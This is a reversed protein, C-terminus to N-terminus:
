ALRLQRGTLWTPEVAVLVSGPARRWTYAAALPDDAALLRAPGSLVVSWGEPHHADLQDVEALARAGRRAAAALGSDSGVSVVLAGDAAAYDVVRLSPEGGPTRAQLVLRAVGHRGVLEWCLEPTMAGSRNGAAPGYPGPGQDRHGGLLQEATTDMARALKLVTEVSPHATAEELYTLYGEDMRARASVEARTLGMSERVRRIRRGVDGPGDGGRQDRPQSSFSKTGPEHARQVPEQM